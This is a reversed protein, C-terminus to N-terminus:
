TSLWDLRPPTAPWTFRVLPKQKESPPEASRLPVRNTGQLSPTRATVTVELAGAADHVAALPEALPEGMTAPPRTHVMPFPVRNARSADVPATAWLKPMPVDDDDKGDGDAASPRIRAGDDVWIWAKTPGAPRGPGGM